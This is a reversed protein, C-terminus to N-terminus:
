IQNLILEKNLAWDTMRKIGDNMEINPFWNSARNLKDFNGTYGLVDGPTSGKYEITIPFPLNDQIEKVIESVYIKKNKSVNYVHYGTYKDNLMKVFADVADDIYVLDRFRKKSGKILVHKNRIAQSLYISTMGQQLNDLNQGPGYINFLRLSICNIGFQEAFIRLYQESALKSTGYLSKPNTPMDETLSSYNVPEGYVSVTSAYIIKKCSSKKLYELLLLTSQANAQLDYIPDSYSPEGGSQGAIHFIANFDYKELLEIIELNHAGMEFFDVGQPISSLHGTSLNDIGV